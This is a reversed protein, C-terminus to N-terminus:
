TNNQHPNDASLKGTLDVLNHSINTGQLVGTDCMGKGNGSGALGQAILFTASTASSETRPMITTLKNIHIVRNFDLLSALGGERM